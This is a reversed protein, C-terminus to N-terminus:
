STRDTFPIMTSVRNRGIVCEMVRESFRIENGQTNNEYTRLVRKATMTFLISYCKAVRTYKEGRRGHAVFSLVGLSFRLVYILQGGM